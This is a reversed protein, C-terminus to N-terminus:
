FIFDLLILKGANAREKAATENTHTEVQYTPVASRLRSSPTFGRQQQNDRPTSSYRTDIVNEISRKQPVVAEKSITQNAGNVHKNENTPRRSHRSSPLILEDIDGNFNIFNETSRKAM